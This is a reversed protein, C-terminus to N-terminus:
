VEVASDEDSHYLLVWTVFSLMALLEEAAGRDTHGGDVRGDAVSGADAVGANGSAVV